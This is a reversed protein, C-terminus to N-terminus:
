MRRSLRPDLRDRLGDGLMNVALVTLTLFAGPILISWPAIQFFTRGQSIINGWSPIEPPVGAGLFSLGAEVLMASACVYTAQVILPAMTNPLIHKVLLKPGRTGGSIASEIYPQSRISLVVSRTLRVIRPVEPIVIAVLVIGLGPRTLTILAIALLISPISMIGDMIRMVIADVKRFYGCLLGLTLGIVSAFAAVALGVVLSVRAGYITRSYVDRGYQDTGFWWRESPPKLRQAPNLKLPDGTIWPAIVALVILTLLISGGIFITPNRRIATRARSLLGPAEAASATGTGGETVAAM